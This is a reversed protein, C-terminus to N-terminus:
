DDPDITWPGRPSDVTGTGFCDAELVAETHGDHYLVNFRKKPHRPRVPDDVVISWSGHSGNGMFFGQAAFQSEWEVVAFTESPRRVATPPLNIQEPIPNPSAWDPKLAISATGRFGPTVTARYIDERTIAYSLLHHPVTFQRPKEDTPCVLVRTSRPALSAQIEAETLDGGLDANLLDDWTVSALGTGLGQEVTALASADAIGYIAAYPLMNERAAYSAMAIGIQRLNSACVIQKAAARAMNVASLLIGILLGIIGIVVLLEILTFAPGPRNITRSRM